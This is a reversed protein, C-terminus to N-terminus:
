IIGPVAENPYGDVAKFSENAGADNADIDWNITDVDDFTGDPNPGVAAQNQYPLGTGPDIFGNALELEGNAISNADGPARPIPLQHTYVKFGPQSLNVGSAAYTA